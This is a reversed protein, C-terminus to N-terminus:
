KVTASTALSSGVNYPLTGMLADSKSVFGVFTLGPKYSTPTIDLFNLLYKNSTCQVTSNGSLVTGTLTETVNAIVIIQRSSLAM